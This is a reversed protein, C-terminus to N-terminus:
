HWTQATWAPCDDRVLDRGIGLITKREYVGGKIDFVFAKFMMVYLICLLLSCINMTEQSIRALSVVDWRSRLMVIGAFMCYAPYKEM